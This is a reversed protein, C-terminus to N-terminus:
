LAAMCAKQFETQTESADTESLVCAQTHQVSRVQGGRNRTETDAGAELLRTLMTVDEVMVAQFLAAQLSPKITLGLNYIFSILVCVQLSAGDMEWVADLRLQAAEQEAARSQQLAETAARRGRALAAAAEADEAAAQATERYEAKQWEAPGMVSDDACFVDRRRAQGWGRPMVTADCCCADFRSVRRCLGGGLVHEGIRGTGSSQEVIELRTM